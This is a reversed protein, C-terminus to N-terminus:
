GTSVHRSMWETLRSDSSIPTSVSLIFLSVQLVGGGVIGALAEWWPGPSRAILVVAAGALCAVGVLGTMAVEITSFHGTVIRALGLLYLWILSMVLLWFLFIPLAAWSAMSSRRLALGVALWVPGTQVLHRVVGDSAVGVVLLAVFIALLCGVIVKESALM